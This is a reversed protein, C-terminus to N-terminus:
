QEKDKRSSVRPSEGKNQILYHVRLIAYTFSALAIGFALLANAYELYSLWQPASIGAGVLGAEGTVKFVKLM